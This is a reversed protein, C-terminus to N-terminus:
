PLYPLFILLGMVAAFAATLLVRDAAMDKTELLHLGAHQEEVLLSTIGRLAHDFSARRQRLWNV